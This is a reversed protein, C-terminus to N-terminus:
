KKIQMTADVVERDFYNLGMGADVVIGQGNIGSSRESLLFTALDTVEKTQLSKKRFTLKEAYLYNVLYGPIGASASTKLPGANVSNFRVESSNSFSKALYRVSAELSAKIPAMYGYNEATVETSSIGITVVSANNALIPKCANALEVLSFSSIQMAQLFDERKTEHFPLMGDSYNAFAISHLIGHLKDCKSSVKKALSEIDEKIEYDCIFIEADPILAHLEKKRKESRVSFLVNAGQEILTQSTVWAISKRNAFGVVLFTKGSLNLFSM